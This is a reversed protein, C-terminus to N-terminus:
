KNAEELQQEVWKVKQEQIKMSNEIDSQMCKVYVLIIIAIMSCVVAIRRSKKYDKTMREKTIGIYFSKYDMVESMLKDFNKIGMDITIINSSGIIKFGTYKKSRFGIVKRIDEVSEWDISKEGFIDKTTIGKSDISITTFVIRMLEDLIVVGMIVALFYLGDSLMFIGIMGQFFIHYLYYWRDYHYERM